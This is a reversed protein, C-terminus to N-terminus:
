NVQIHGGLRYRSGPYILKAYSVVGQKSYTRRSVKLCPENVSVTLRKALGLENESRAVIAEVIHDAETLPAVQTLHEYPTTVAFNQKLYDPALVPNVFREELQIALENEFFVLVSHFVKSKPKLGLLNAQEENAVVQELKIVQTTCNHGRESIEEAINRISLMSSMPRSDSVFTGLGQTRYLLGSESLDELAKRATMRSVSFQAALKNESTVKAGPPLEGSDIKEVLYNKIAQYKKSTM